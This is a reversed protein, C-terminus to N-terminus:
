RIQMHVIDSLSPIKDPYVGRLVQVVSYGVAALTGLFVVNFLVEILFNASGGMQGLTPLIFYSNVVNCLILVIDILIAQMTNFRIFHSINENRIVLLYLAFFVLLSVFPLRYIGILPALPAFLLAFAPVQAFLFRGFGSVIVDLLPLLYPLAAFLRDQVPSTGRLAM